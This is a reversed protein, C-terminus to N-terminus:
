ESIHFRSYGDMDALADPETSFDPFDIHIELCSHFVFLQHEMRKQTEWFNKEDENIKKYVLKRAKWLGPINGKRSLLDHTGCTLGMQPLYESTPYSGLGAAKTVITKM